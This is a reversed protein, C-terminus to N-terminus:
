SLAAIAAISVSLATFWALATHFQGDLKDTKVDSGHDQKTSMAISRKLTLLIGGNRSM